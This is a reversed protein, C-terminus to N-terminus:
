YIPEVLWCDKCGMNLLTVALKGRQSLDFISLSLINCVQQLVTSEILM